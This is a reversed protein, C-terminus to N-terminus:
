GSLDTMLDMPVLSRRMDECQPVNEPDNGAPFCNLHPEKEQM